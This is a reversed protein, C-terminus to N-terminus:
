QTTEGQTIEKSPTEGLTTGSATTEAQTIKDPTTKVSITGIQSTEGKSSGSTDTMPLTSLNNERSQQTIEKSSSWSETVQSSYLIADTNSSGTKNVTSLQESTELSSSTSMQMKDSTGTNDCELKATRVGPGFCYVTEPQDDRNYTCGGPCEESEGKFKYVGTLDDPVVGHLPDVSVCAPCSATVLTQGVTTGLCHYLILLILQKM